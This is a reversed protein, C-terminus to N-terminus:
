FKFEYEEVFEFGRIELKPINKAGPVMGLYAKYIGPVVPISNKHMTVDVSKQMPLYGKVPDCFQSIYSVKVGETKTGDENNISYPNIGLILVKEEM